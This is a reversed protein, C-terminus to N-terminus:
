GPADCGSQVLKPLSLSAARRENPPRVSVGRKLIWPHMVHSKFSRRSDIPSHSHLVPIVDAPTVECFQRERRDGPHDGAALRNQRGVVFLAFLIGQQAVGMNTASEIRAFSLAGVLLVRASARSLAGRGCLM